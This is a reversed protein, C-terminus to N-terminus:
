PECTLNQTTLSSWSLTERMHKHVHLTLKRTTVPKPALQSGSLNTHSQVSAPQLIQEPHPSTTWCQPTQGDNMWIYYQRNDQNFLIGGTIITNTSPNAILWDGSFIPYSTDAIERLQAPQIQQEQITFCLLTARSKGRHLASGIICLNQNQLIGRWTMLWTPTHFAFIQANPQQQPPPQPSSPVTLILLNQPTRWVGICTNHNCDALIPQPSNVEPIEVSYVPKWSNKEILAFWARTKQPMNNEGWALVAEGAVALYPSSPHTGIRLIRWLEGEQPIVAYAQLAPLDSSESANENLHIAGILPYVRMARATIFTHAAVEPEEVKGAFYITNGEQTATLIEAHGQPPAVWWIDATPQNPQIRILTAVERPGQIPYSEGLLWYTNHSKSYTLSLILTRGAPFITWHIPAQPHAQYWFFVQDRITYGAGARGDPTIGGITPVGKADKLPILRFGNHTSTAPTTPQPKWALLGILLIGTSLTSIRFLLKKTKGARRLPRAQM